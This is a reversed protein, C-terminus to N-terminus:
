SGSNLVSTLATLISGMQTIQGSSLTAPNTALYSTASSILSTLTASDSRNKLFTACDAADRGSVAYQFVLLIFTYLDM